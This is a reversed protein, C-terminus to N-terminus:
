SQAPFLFRRRWRRRRRGRRWLLLPPPMSSNSQFHRELTPLTTPPACHLRTALGNRRDRASSAGTRVRGIREWGTRDERGDRRPALAADTSPPRNPAYTPHPIPIPSPSTATLSLDPFPPCPLAFRHQHPPPCRRRSYTYRPLVHM